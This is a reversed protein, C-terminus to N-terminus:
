SATTSQRLVSSDATSSLLVVLTSNGISRTGHTLTLLTILPERHVRMCGGQSPCANALQGGRPVIRAVLNM